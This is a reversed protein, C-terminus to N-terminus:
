FAGECIVRTKDGSVGELVVTDDGAYTVISVRDKETLNEALVAFSEQLLPLKDDAYMSGSIDLLFVLIPHRFITM